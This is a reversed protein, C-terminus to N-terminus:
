KPITIATIEIKEQSYSLNIHACSYVHTSTSTFCRPMGGEGRGGRGRPHKKTIINDDCDDSRSFNVIWSSIAILLLCSRAFTCARKAVIRSRTRVYLSMQRLFSSVSFTEVDRHLVVHETLSSCVRKRPILLLRCLSAVDERRCSRTCVTDNFYLIFRRCM